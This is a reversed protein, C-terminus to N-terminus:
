ENVENSPKERSMFLIHELTSCKAVMREDELLIRGDHVKNWDVLAGIHLRVQDMDYIAHVSVKTMGTEPNSLHDRSLEVAKEYAKDVADLNNEAQIMIDKEIYDPYKVGFGQSMGGDIGYTVKYNGM